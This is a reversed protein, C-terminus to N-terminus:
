VGGRDLSPAAGLLAQWTRATVAGANHTRHPSTEGGTEPKAPDIGESSQFDRVVGMLADSLIAPERGQAVANPYGRAELLCALDMVQAGADGTTLVPRASVFGGRSKVTEMAPRKEETPMSRPTDTRAEDERPPTGAAASTDAAAGATDAAADPKRSGGKNSQGAM